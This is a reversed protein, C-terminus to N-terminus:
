TIKFLRSGRGVPSDLGFFFIPIGGGEGRKM